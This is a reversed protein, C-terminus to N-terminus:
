RDTLERAITELAYWTLLNKFTRMDTVGKAGGFGAILQLPSEGMSEADSELLQWIAEEHRDYFKVTETYYVFGTFGSDAGHECVDRLDTVSLNRRIARIMRQIEPTASNIYEHNIQTRKM